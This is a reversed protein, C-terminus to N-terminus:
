LKSFTTTFLYIFVYVLVCFLSCCAPLYIGRGPWYISDCKRTNLDVEYMGGRVVIRHQEADTQAAGAENCEYRSSVINSNEVPLASRDSPSNNGSYSESANEQNSYATNYYRWEHYSHRYKSEIRLSDYGSFEIWRKDSCSKYFWRVEEPGLEGVVCDVLKSDPAPHEWTGASTGTSSSESSDLPAADQSDYCFNEPVIEQQTVYLIDDRESYEFVSDSPRSIEGFEENLECASNVSGENSSNFNM